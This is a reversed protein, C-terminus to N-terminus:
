NNWTTLPPIPAGRLCAAYRETASAHCIAGARAGRSRTIGNCTDTDVRLLAECEETNDEPCVAEGIANGLIGGIFAGTAGGIQSGAVAGGTGAAGACVLAGPGSPSCVLGGAAAGGTAGLAGGGYYGAAGLCIAGGTTYAAVCARNKELGFPDFYIMPNSEVYAYTSPGAKQGIPDSQVYRAESAGSAITLIIALATIAVNRIM